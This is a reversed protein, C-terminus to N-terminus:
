RKLSCVTRASSGSKVVMVWASYSVAAPIERQGARREEARSLGEKEM